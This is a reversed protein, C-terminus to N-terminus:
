LKYLLALGSVESTSSFLNVKLQLKKGSADFSERTGPGGIQAFIIGGDISLWVEANTLNNGNIRAEVLTVPSDIEKMESVWTGSSSTCSLVGGVIQTNSHSGTDTSFDFNWSYNMENPNKIETLEQEKVLREKFLHSIQKLEKEITLITKMFGNFKHKYSIIKYYNPPLNSTPASIKIQEGPQITSLGICEVNGITQPDLALALEYNAREQCQTETKINTDNIILEKTGYTSISTDDKATKILPNGGIEAGYVIVKNKISSLDNAFDGVEFLNSGHVIAETTNNITGSEFYHCDLSSDVYCDFGAKNCLDRVCEWFPKQNWNITINTTSTNINDYTFDTAYNDFLNKLIESTEINTYSKTVTVDLLKFADSRGSLKIKNEQYSVKEIIGRFRLTTASTAYDIYVKIVEGGMWVGTYTELSNDLTFTFSGITDTVGDIVEGQSIINTINDKTIGDSRTVEIKYLAGYTPPIWVHIPIPKTRGISRINRVASM